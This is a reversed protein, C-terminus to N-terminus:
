NIKQVTQLDCYEPFKAGFSSKFISNQLLDLFFKFHWINLKCTTIRSATIKQVKKHKYSTLVQFYVCFYILNKKKEKYKSNRVKLSHILIVENSITFKSVEVSKFFCSNKEKKMNQSKKVHDLTDEHYRHQSTKKRKKSM